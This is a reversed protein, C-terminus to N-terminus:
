RDCFIIQFEKRKSKIEKEQLQTMNFITKVYIKMLTWLQLKIEVDTAITQLQSFLQFM